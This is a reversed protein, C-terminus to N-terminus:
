MENNKKKRNRSKKGSGLDTLQAPHGMTTALDNGEKSPSPAQFWQELWNEEGDDSTGFLLLHRVLPPSAQDTASSSDVISL